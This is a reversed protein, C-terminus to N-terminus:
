ALRRVVRLWWVWGVGLFLTTMALVTWTDASLRSSSMLTGAWTVAIIVPAGILYLRGRVRHSQRQGDAFRPLLSPERLAARARAIRVVNYGVLFAGIAGVGVFAAVSAGRVAYWAVIAGCLLVSGAMHQWSRTVTMGAHRRLTEIRGQDTPQTVDDEGDIAQL